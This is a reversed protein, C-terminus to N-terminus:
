AIIFPTKFVKRATPWRMGNGHGLWGYISYANDRGLENLKSLCEQVLKSSVVCCNLGRIAAQSNSLIVIEPNQCDRVFNFQVCREIAHSKRWSCLLRTRPEFLGAEAREPIRSGDTNRVIAHKKLVNIANVIGQPYVM